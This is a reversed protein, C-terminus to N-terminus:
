APGAVAMLAAGVAGALPGGAVVEVQVRRPGVLPNSELAAMMPVTLVEGAAAVGGGLVVLEPDLLNVLNGVGLAVWGAFEEMVAVAAPVGRRAAESVETGVIRDDPGSLGAGRGSRVAERAIEELGTGSAYREWCGRQGCPCPPGHPDVVMHGPEGAFGRAGRLLRGEVILGAGIGTGLTIAVLNRVAPGHTAQAVRAVCNADNDVWAPIGTAERLTAAVDVGELAPANPSRRVVGDLDVLGALGAGVGVIAGRDAGEALTAAVDALRHALDDDHAESPVEILREVVPASGPDIRVLAALVKTGGVDIGIALAADGSSRADSPRGDPRIV